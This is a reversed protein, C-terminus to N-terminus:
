QPVIFASLRRTLNRALLGVDAFSSIHSVVQYAIPPSSRGCLEAVRSYDEHSVGRLLAIVYMSDHPVNYSDQLQRYLVERHSGEAGAAGDAGGQQQDAASASASIPLLKVSVEYGNNIIASDNPVMGQLMRALPECVDEDYTVFLTFPRPMKEPVIPNCRILAVIFLLRHPVTYTLFLNINGPQTRGLAKFLSSYTTGVHTEPTRQQQHQRATTCM